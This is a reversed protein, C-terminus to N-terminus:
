KTQAGIFFPQNEFANQINETFGWTHRYIPVFRTKQLFTYILCNKLSDRTDDRVPTIIKPFTKIVQSIEQFWITVQYLIPELHNRFKFLFDGMPCVPKKRHSTSKNKYTSNKGTNGDVLQWQNRNRGRNLIFESLHYEGKQPARRNLMFFIMKHIPMNQCPRSGMTTPSNLM